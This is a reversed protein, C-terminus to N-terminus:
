SNPHCMSLHPNGTAFNKSPKPHGIGVASRPGASSHHSLARWHPFFHLSKGLHDASISVFEQYAAGFSPRKQEARMESISALLNGLQPGAAVNKTLKRTCRGRCGRENISGNLFHESAFQPWHRPGHLERGCRAPVHGKPSIEVPLPAQTDHFEQFFVSDTVEFTEDQGSPLKGRIEDGVNIPNKTDLVIIKEPVIAANTM